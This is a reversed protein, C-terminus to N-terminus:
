SPLYVVEKEDVIRVSARSQCWKDENWKLELDRVEGGENM